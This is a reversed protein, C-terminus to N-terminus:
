PRCTLDAVYANGNSDPPCLAVPPSLKGTAPDYRVVSGNDSAGAYLAGGCPSISSLVNVAPIADRVFPTGGAISVPVIAMGSRAKTGFFDYYGCAVYLTDGLLALAGPNVCAAGLSVAYPVHAGQALPDTALDVVALRGEGAPLFGNARDLNQLTVYLQSGVAILRFPTPGTASSALASPLPIRGLYQGCTTAVCRGNVCATGSQAACDGGAGCAPPAAQCQSVDLVAIADAGNLAVYARGSVLAIGAPGTFLDAGQPDLRTEAVVVGSAADVVELTALASNSVYLLGSAGAVYELDPFASTADVTITRSVGVGGPVPLDFRLESLTAGISNATYLRGDLWALSVPRTGVTQSDGAPALAGTAGVVQNTDGCALYLETLCAGGTCGTQVCTGNRLVEGQPCVTEKGCAGLALLSLVAAAHIWTRM